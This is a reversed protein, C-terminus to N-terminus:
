NLKPLPINYKECISPVQLVSYEDDANIISAANVKHQIAKGSLMRAFAMKASNFIWRMLEENGVWSNPLVRYEVGYSKPRYSGAKGYLLRRKRSAKSNDLYAMPAGLYVDLEKVFMECAERHGPDNIDMGETWGIHLHGSGTRFLANQDPAENEKSTYANFDPDCGLEKEEEEAADWVAKSFTVCPRNVLEHDPVMLSMQKIVSMNNNVFEDATKAPNINYEALMGDHQVAGDEVPHPEKKTGPILKYASVWPKGPTTARMFLEPDAGLKFDKPSVNM